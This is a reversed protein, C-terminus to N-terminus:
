LRKLYQGSGRRATREASDMQDPWQLGREIKIWGSAPSSGMTIATLNGSMINCPGLWGASPLIELLIWKRYNPFCINPTRFERKFHCGGAWECASTNVVEGWKDTGRAGPGSLWKDTNFHCIDADRLSGHTLHFSPNPKTQLLIHFSSLWLRLFGKSLGKITTCTDTVWLSYKIWM